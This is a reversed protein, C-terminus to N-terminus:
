VESTNKRQPGNCSRIPESSELAALQASHSNVLTANSSLGSWATLDDHITATGSGAETLDFEVAQTSYNFL